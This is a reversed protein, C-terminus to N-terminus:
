TSSAAVHDFFSSLADVSIDKAVSEQEEKSIPEEFDQETERRYLTFKFDIERKPKAALYPPDFHSLVVLRASPLKGYLDITKSVVEMEQETLLNYSFDKRAVKFVTFAKGTSKGREIHLMKGLERYARNLVRMDPTPGFTNRFYSVDTITRRQSRYYEAEVFYLLKMLKTEIVGEDGFKSVIFLLLEKFKKADGM